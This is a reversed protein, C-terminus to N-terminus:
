DKYKKNTKKEFYKKKLKGVPYVMPTQENTVIVVDGQFPCNEMSRVFMKGLRVRIPLDKHMDFLFVNM